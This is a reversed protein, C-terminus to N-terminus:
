TIPSLETWLRAVGADGGVSPFPLRNWLAPYLEGAAGAVECDAEGSADRTTVPPEASLRVTWVDGTDTTRFRLTRPTDTRVKSSRRGHFGTLMEDIGDAAFEPDFAVGDGGHATEADFRHIATEHAQRRAWFALPAPAPLFSWCEVDTPATRLTEVLTGHGEDFWKLLATATLDEPAPAPRRPSRHGEAVFATAWRHIAGTHRLLERVHWGPCAPVPADPGADAAAQSLAKGQHDLHALFDTTEM